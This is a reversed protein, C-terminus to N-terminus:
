KPPGYHRTAASRTPYAFSRKDTQAVKVSWIDAAGPQAVEILSAKAELDMESLSCAVM